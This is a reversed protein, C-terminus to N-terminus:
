DFLDKCMCENAHKIGSIIQVFEFDCYTNNERSLVRVREGVCGYKTVCM